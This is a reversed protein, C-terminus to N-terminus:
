IFWEPMIRKLESANPAYERYESSARVLKFDKLSYQTTCYEDFSANELPMGNKDWKCYIGYSKTLLSEDVEFSLCFDFNVLGSLRHKAEDPDDAFFCFGVSNTRFRLKHDTSNHICKGKLLDTYEKTSCFRHIIM